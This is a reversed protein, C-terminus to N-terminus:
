HGQKEGKYTNIGFMDYLPCWTLMATVLMITGPILWLWSGGMIVYVMAIIFLLTRIAGDPGSINTVM